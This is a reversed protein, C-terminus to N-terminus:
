HSPKRMLDSKDYEKGRFEEENLNKKSLIFGYQDQHKYKPDYYMTVSHEKLYKKFLQLVEGIFKEDHNLYVGLGEPELALQELLSPLDKWDAKVFRIDTTRENVWNRFNPIM